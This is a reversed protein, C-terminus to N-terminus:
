GVINGGKKDNMASYHKEVVKSLISRQESSLLHADSFSIGGEMYFSITALDTIIAKRNKEMIEM